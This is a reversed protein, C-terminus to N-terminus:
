TRPTRATPSPRRVARTTNAEVLSIDTRPRCLIDHLDLYNTEESASASGAYADFASVRGSFNQSDDLQLDGGVFTGSAVEM